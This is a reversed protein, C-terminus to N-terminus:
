KNEKEEIITIFESFGEKLGMQTLASCAKIIWTRSEIDDLQLTERIEDATTATPLDQKNAFVLLPVNALDDRALLENLESGSEKLRRTDSSDIVFVLGDV